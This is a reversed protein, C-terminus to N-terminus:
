FEGTGNLGLGPICLLPFGSGADEFHIRVNGKEYFRAGTAGKGSGQAFASPTAAMAVAAAGSTLVTRRKSDM